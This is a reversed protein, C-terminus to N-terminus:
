TTNAPANMIVVGRPTLIFSVTTNARVTLRMRIGNFALLIIDKSTKENSREPM